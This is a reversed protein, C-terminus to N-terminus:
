PATTGALPPLPGPSSRLRRVLDRDADLWDLRDLDALAEWRISAFALNRPEPEFREVEFFHLLVTPHDEYEHGIRAVEAGIVAGIGLEEYLERRLAAAPSEGEELKGGPFEWRLGFRGEAPRQCALVSGNRRLIGAAVKLV